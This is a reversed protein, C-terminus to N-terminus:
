VRYRWYTTVHVFDVLEFYSVRGSGHLVASERFPDSLIGPGRRLSWPPGMLQCATFVFKGDGPCLYLSMNPCALRFFVITKCKDLPHKM